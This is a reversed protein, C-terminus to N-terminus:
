LALLRGGAEEVLGADVLDLGQQFAPLAEARLREANAYLITYPDVQPRVGTHRPQNRLSEGPVLEQAPTPQAAVVDATSGAAEQSLPATPIAPDAVSANGPMPGARQHQLVGYPASLRIETHERILATAAAQEAEQELSAGPLAPGTGLQQVVHAVEHTLLRRGWASDPRYYGRAFYIDTGSTVALSGQRRAFDDAQVDDHLQVASLDRGFSQELQGRLWAPMRAGGSSQGSRHGPDPHASPAPLRDSPPSAGRAWRPIKELPNSAGPPRSSGLRSPLGGGARRGPTTAVTEAVPTAGADYKREAM